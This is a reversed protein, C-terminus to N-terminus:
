VGTRLQLCLVVVGRKRAEELVGPTSAFVHCEEVTNFPKLLAPEEQGTLAAATFAALIAGIM